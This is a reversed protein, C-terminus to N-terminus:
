NLKKLWEDPEIASVVSAEFDATNRTIIYNASVEEACRDQLCDEFDKFNDMKIAKMVAEQSASAVKLIKCVKELWSRRTEAPVKRLIYWLNPLSHFAIYGEAEGSACKEMVHLASEYFPERAVLFDSRTAVLEKFAQMKEDPKQSPYIVSTYTKKPILRQIVEILFGVNDDSMDQIMQVAQEQLMTM